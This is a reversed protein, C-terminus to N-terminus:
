ISFCVLVLRSPFAALSLIMYVDLKLAAFSSILYTPQSNVYSQNCLCQCMWVTAPVHLCQGTQRTRTQNVQVLLPAVQNVRCCVSPTPRRALRIWDLALSRGPTIELLASQDSATMKLRRSGSLPIPATHATQVAITAMTQAAMHQSDVSRSYQLTPQSAAFQVTGACWLLVGPGSNIESFLCTTTALAKKIREKINEVQHRTRNHQEQSLERWGVM